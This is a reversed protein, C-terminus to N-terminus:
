VSKHAELAWFTKKSTWLEWQHDRTSMLALITESLYKHLKFPSMLARCNSMNIPAYLFALQEFHRMKSIFLKKTYEFTENPITRTSMVASFHKWCILGSINQLEFFNTAWFTENPSLFPENYSFPSFHNWYFSLQDDLEQIIWIKCM